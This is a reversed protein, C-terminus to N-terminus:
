EDRVGKILLPIGAVMLYVLEAHFAIVQNAQGLQEQFFRGTPNVPVLSSGVENSVVIITAPSKLAESALTDIKYRIKSILPEKPEEEKYDSILNAVLFNLCDLIIVEATDGIEPIVKEVQEPEEYTQWDQPRRRRHKSIRETMEKDLAQGTAIYAIKSGIEQALAEAFSSKGSRVGGTILILKPRGQKM